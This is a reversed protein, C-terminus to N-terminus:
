WQEVHDLVFGGSSLIAELNSVTDEVVSTMKGGKLMDYAVTNGQLFQVNIEQGKPNLYVGGLVIKSKKKPAESLQIEERIIKRLQSVTIRM